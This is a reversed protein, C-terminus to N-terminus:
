VNKGDVDEWEVDSDSACAPQVDKVERMMEPAKVQKLPLGQDKVVCGGNDMCKEGAKQSVQEHALKKGVSEMYECLSGDEKQTGETEDFADENCRSEKFKGPMINRTLESDSVFDNKRKRDLKLRKRQLDIRLSKKKRKRRSQTEEESDSSEESLNLAVQGFYKSKTETVM